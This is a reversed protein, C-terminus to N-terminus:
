DTLKGGATIWDTIKQRDAVSLAPAPPPPMQNATGAQTVARNRINNSQAVITCNDAFNIGSQASSGVHCGSLACNAALVNKVATFLPGPTGPCTTPNPTPNGGSNSKSCSLVVMGMLMVLFISKAMFFKNRIVYSPPWPIGNASMFKFIIGCYIM